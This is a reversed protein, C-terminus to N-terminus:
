KRFKLLKIIEYGIATGRFVHYNSVALGDKRIFFGSGQYANYGDTTFVMFVASDYRKFIETASIVNNTSHKVTLEERQEPQSRIRKDNRSLTSKAAYPGANKRGENRGTMTCSALSFAFLFLGINYFRNM